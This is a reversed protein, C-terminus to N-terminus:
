RGECLVLRVSQAFSTEANNHRAAYAHRGSREHHDDRVHEQVSTTGRWLQLPEVV